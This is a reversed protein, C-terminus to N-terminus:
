ICNPDNPDSCDLWTAAFSAFDKFDVKCDKNVDGALYVTGPDGCKEPPPFSFDQARPYPLLGNGTFDVSIPAIPMWMPEIVPYVYWWNDFSMLGDDELFAYSHGFRFNGAWYGTQPPSDFEFLHHEPDEPKYYEYLLRCSGIIPGPAGGADEFIEFAGIVYGGTANSDPPAGLLGTSMRWGLDPVALFPTPTFYVSSYVIPPFLGVGPPCSINMQTTITVMAGQPVPNDSLDWDVTLENPPNANEVIAPANNTDWDIYTRYGYTTKSGAKYHLDTANFGARRQLIQYTDTVTRTIGIGAGQTIDVFDPINSLVVVNDIYRHNNQYNYNIYWGNGYDTGGPNPNNYDDYRYTQIAQSADAYDSDAIKVENPNAVLLAGGGSDGWVTIAHGWVGPRYISLRAVREFRLQNGLWKPMYDAQWPDRDRKCNPEGYLYVYKYPNTKKWTNYSSSLWDRLAEDAWGCDNCDEIHTCIETYIEDAREQVTNGDGYGAGALMNSAAAVWCTPSGIDGHEAKDVDPPNTTKLWDGALSGALLLVPLTAAALCVAGKKLFYPLNKM